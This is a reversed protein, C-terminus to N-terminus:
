KAHELDPSVLTVATLKFEPSPTHDLVVNKKSREHLCSKHQREKEWEAARASGWFWRVRTEQLRVNSSHWWAQCFPSIKNQKVKSWNFASVFERSYWASDVDVLNMVNQSFRVADTRAVSSTGADCRGRHQGGHCYWRRILNNHRASGKTSVAM